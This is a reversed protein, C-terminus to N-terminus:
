GSWIEDKSNVTISKAQAFFSTKFKETNTFDKLQVKVKNMVQERDLNEYEGKPLQFYMNSPEFDIRIAAPHTNFDIGSFPITTFNIPTTQSYSQLSGSIGIMLLIIFPPIQINCINM